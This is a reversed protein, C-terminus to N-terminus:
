YQKKMFYEPVTMKEISNGFLHYGKLMKSFAEITKIIHKEVTCEKDYM